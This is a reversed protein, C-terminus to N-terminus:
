MKKLIHLIGKSMPSVIHLTTCISGASYGLMTVSNPNGGFHKIHDRIWKFALMQDMMGYNGPSHHTGTSLFGLAGLRYNLTVLVIDTDMLLYPGAGAESASSGAVFAGGHIYVLVPKAKSSFSCDKIEHKTPLWRTYVNLFLCNESM